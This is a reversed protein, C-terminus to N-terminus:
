PTLRLVGGSTNTIVVQPTTTAFGFVTNVASTQIVQPTTTAFGWVTSITVNTVVSISNTSGDV